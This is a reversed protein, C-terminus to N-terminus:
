NHNIPNGLNMPYFHDTVLKKIKSKALTREPKYKISFSNSNVTMVKARAMKRELLQNIISPITIHASDSKQNRLVSKHYNEYGKFFNKNLCFVGTSVPTEDNVKLNKLGEYEFVENTKRIKEVELIQRLVEGNDETLCIGRDVYGYPSLTKILPFNIVAFNPSGSHFFEMAKSFIDKGYFHKSNIVLFPGQIHRKAKWIAYSSNAFLKHPIQKGLYIRSVPTISVWRIEIFDEFKKQIANRIIKKISDNVIFVVRTFGTQIADYLSYEVLLENNPGIPEYFRKEYLDKDSTALVVLTTKM